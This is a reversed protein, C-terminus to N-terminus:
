GMIRYWMPEPCSQSIELFDCFCPTFFHVQEGYYPLKLSLFSQINGRDLSTEKRVIVALLCM